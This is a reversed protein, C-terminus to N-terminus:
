IIWKKNGDWQLNAHTEIVWGAVVGGGAWEGQGRASGSPTFGWALPSHGRAKYPSLHAPARHAGEENNIPEAHYGYHCSIITRKTRKERAISRRKRAETNRQSASLTYIYAILFKFTRPPASADELVAIAAETPRRAGGVM